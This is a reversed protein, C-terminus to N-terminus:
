PRQLRRRRVGTPVLRDYGLGSSNEGRGVQKRVGLWTYVRGGYWRARQFSQTVRVSARPVGEEALFYAEMPNRDIGERLLTTRPRIKEPDNPDEELIRPMAARQLQIQRNSGPVRVPLFPIWNEPVSSMVRYRVPATPTDVPAPLAGGELQQDLLRQYVAHLERAAERGPLTLGAPTQVRTEIAWVMNAMEDRTLEFAEIPAGVQVKPTTPLMVLSTDAPTADQGRTNIIFMSWRQWDDDAGSGAPEILIREGFVNTVAMAEIKAIDGAELAHPLIFWDNAYILGFEIFLLKALDTTAPSIDGFNTRGEEFTWWRTNPMGDFSLGVPIFSTTSADRPDPIPPDGPIALPDAAPARDLSHWDLQGQYYEDAVYVTEGAGEPASCAFQYELHEPRWADSQDADPRHFLGEIWDVYRAAIADIAVHESAPIGTGDHARNAPNDTLHLYLAYGDVTREAAASLYAWAEAHAVTTAHAPDDPDPPVVGYAGIFEQEFNGVDRNVLKLWRRGMMLRLDFSVPRGGVEFPVPRNEVEAELPVTDPFERAEGGSPKYKTLRTKRMRIKAAVPSGADDGLFEGLQWQRTLMWLPDRLEAKLVRDFDERRPRGELRNWLTITPLRREALVAALDSIRPAEAM